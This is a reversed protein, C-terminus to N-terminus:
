WFMPPLLEINYKYYLKHLTHLISSVDKSMIITKMLDQVVILLLSLRDENNIAFLRLMFALIDLSGYLIINQSSRFKRIVYAPQRHSFVPFVEKLAWTLPRLFQCLVENERVSYLCYYYKIRSWLKIVLLNMKLLVHLQFKWYFWVDIFKYTTHSLVFDASCWSKSKILGYLRYQDLVHFM